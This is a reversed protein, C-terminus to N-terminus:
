AELCSDSGWPRDRVIVKDVRAKYNMREVIIDVLERYSRRGSAQMFFRVLSDDTPRGMAPSRAVLSPIHRIVTNVDNCRMLFFIASIFQTEYMYSWVASKPGGKLITHSLTTLDLGWAHDGSHGCIDELYKGFELPSKTVGGTLRGLTESQGPLGEFFSAAVAWLYGAADRLAKPAIRPDQGAAVSNCRVIDRISRPKGSRTTAGKYLSVLTNGNGMVSGWTSLVTHAKLPPAPNEKPLLGSVERRAPELTDHRDTARVFFSWQAVKEDRLTACLPTDVARGAIARDGANLANSMNWLLFASMGGSMDIDEYIYAQHIVTKLDEDFLATTRQCGDSVFLASSGYEPMSFFAMPTDHCGNVYLSARLRRVVDKKPDRNCPPDPIILPRSESCLALLTKKEKTTLADWERWWIVRDSSMHVDRRVAFPLNSIGAVETGTLLKPGLVEIVHARWDGLLAKKEDVTCATPNEARDKLEDFTRGGRTVKKAKSM